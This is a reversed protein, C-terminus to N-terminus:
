SKLINIFAKQPIDVNGVSKMRKKGEKQKELLKRKRSIDGGYCKATVDKRMAGITERAIVTSGIAAQLPISFMHKPIEDRLKSLIHKAKHRAKEKHSLFSLSDVYEKNVLIDVKTIDAPRYELLEYDLSAYGRSVSKLKDYFDFVVEALPLEFFAEVRKTDLSVINKQIGRKEICLQMINGLYESPTIITAKIFPEEIIEILSPDPLHIPNDIVTTKSPENKKAHGTVKYAVSPATLLVPMNYEQNLREQIIEMHLLGLFGARFGFGLAASNEKEYTLAADNLKLKELATKLNDYDDTSVPFIGAFVMPKIQKYGPLPADAPNNKMTITDGVNIESVSKIGLIAYGVEGYSLMDTKKREIGLLGVEEVSYESKGHMLLVQDGPKIQGQYIRICIVAGRYTDFFSDFILAKLITNKNHTPPPLVSVISEMLLDIGINNKASVKVVEDKELGLDHEIQSLVNDIDASPLDIKNIVPLIALDNEMALFYNSLTQAEVGQAADIVLVAGECAALSRSVEYTFDVHGPTDILNITYTEGDKATYKLSVVASKVTIGREKEIELSDLIQETMKRKDVTNTIELIRDSITSKGHDIHAIICFNRIKSTKM